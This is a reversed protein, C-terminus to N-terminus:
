STCQAICHYGVYIINLFLFWTYNWLKSSPDFSIIEVDMRLRADAKGGIVAFWMENTSVYVDDPTIRTYGHITTIVSQSDSPDQGTWIQVTVDGSNFLSLSHFVIRFGYTANTQLWTTNYLRSYSNLPIYIFHSEGEKLYTASNDTIIQQEFVLFSLFIQFLSTLFYFLFFSGCSFLAPLGGHKNM